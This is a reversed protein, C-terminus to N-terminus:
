YCSMCQNSVRRGMFRGLITCRTKIEKHRIIPWQCWNKKTKHIIHWGVRCVIYQEDKMKELWKLHCPHNSIQPRFKQIEFVLIEIIKEDLVM